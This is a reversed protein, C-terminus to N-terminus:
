LRRATRRFEFFENISKNFVLFIIATFSCLGLSILIFSFISYQSPWPIFSYFVLGTVALLLVIMLWKAWNFGVIICYMLAITLFIRVAGSVYEVTLITTAIDLLLFWSFLFYLINRAKTHTTNLESM